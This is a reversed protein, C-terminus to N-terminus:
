GQLMSTPEGITDGPKTLCNLDQDFALITAAEIDTESMAASPWRATPWHDLPFRRGTM